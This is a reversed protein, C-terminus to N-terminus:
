ESELQVEERRIDDTTKTMPGQTQVKYHMRRRRGLEATRQTRKDWKKGERGGVGVTHRGPVPGGTQLSQSVAGLPPGVSPDLLVM